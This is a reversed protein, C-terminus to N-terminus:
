KDNHDTVNNLSCTRCKKDYRCTKDGAPSGAKGQDQAAKCRKRDRRPDRDETNEKQQQAENNESFLKEEM